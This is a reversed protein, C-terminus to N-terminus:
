KGKWTSTDGTAAAAAAVPPAADSAAGVPPLPKPRTARGIMPRLTKERKMSLNTKERKVSVTSWQPRAERAEVARSLLVDFQVFDNGSTLGRTSHFSARIWVM